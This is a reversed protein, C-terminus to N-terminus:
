TCRGAVCAHNFACQAFYVDGVTCPDGPRPLDECRGEPFGNAGPYDIVCTLGAGCQDFLACVAGRAGRAIPRCVGDDGCQLGAGCPLPDCSACPDAVPDCPEVPPFFAGECTGGHDAWYRGQAAFQAADFCQAVQQGQSVRVSECVEGPQCGGCASTDVLALSCAVPPPQGITCPAQALWDLCAGALAPDFMMASAAAPDFGVSTWLLRDKRAATGTAGNLARCAAEDDAWLLGCTVLRACQLEGLVAVYDAADTPSRHATPAPAGRALDALCAAQTSSECGAGLLAGLACAAVLGSRM